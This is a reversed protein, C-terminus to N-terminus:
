MLNKFGDRYSSMDDLVYSKMAESDPQQANAM